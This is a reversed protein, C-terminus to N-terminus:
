QMIGGNEVYISQPKGAFVTVNNLYWMESYVVMSLGNYDYYEAIPTVVKDGFHDYSTVNVVGSTEDEAEISYEWGMYWMYKGLMYEPLNEEGYIAAADYCFGVQGPTTVGFALCSPAGMMDEWVFFWQRGDPTKADSKVEEIPAIEVVDLSDAGLDDIIAAEETVAEPECGLQEVVINTIKELM